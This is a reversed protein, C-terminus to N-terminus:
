EGDKDTQTQSVDSKRRGRQNEASGLKPPSGAFPYVWRVFTQGETRLSEGDITVPVPTASREVMGLVIVCPQTFWRSLDMGHTIQRHAIVRRNMLSESQNEEIPPLHHIFTLARLSAELTSVSLREAARTAFEDAISGPVLSSLLREGTDGGNVNTTLTALDLTQGPEWPTRTTIYNTRAILGNTANGTADTQRHVVILVLNTISGPLNHLLTGRVMPQKLTINWDPTLTLEGVGTGDPQTPRPMQWAPPGSWDLQFEKVTGRVPFTISDPRLTNVAYGRVDPFAGIASDTSGAQEWASVASLSRETSDGAEGVAITADGYSPVYAAAWARARQLSQGYVHDLITFHMASRRKARLASAATWSIGTFAAAGALFLLWSHQHLNKRRLMYFAPPGVCLWYGAFVVLGALLGVASRGAFRILSGVANDVIWPARENVPMNAKKPDAPPQLNGRRGLVRHWLIDADIMEGQSLQTQNLDLGVLTVMGAGVLRRVVVCGEPGSLIPMAENAAADDAPKFLTVTGSKPYNGSTRATILPRYPLMDTNERREILVAPMIDYLPNSLPTTWTQGITPLVVVLHGGRRVWARVAEARDQRLGAIEGSGWALVEFPALGMWRDPLDEPRLGQVIETLEHSVKPALFNASVRVAYDRLGLSRNGMMAILGVHEAVTNSVTPSYVTKGLMAGARWALAPDGEDGGSELAEFVGISIERRRPDDVPLRAYLWVLDKGGPNTTVVRQQLTVDGEADDLMLRVLVTRPTSATDKLSVLLGNWDCRRATKGLGFSEVNIAIENRVSESSGAFLPDNSAPQDAPAGQAPVADQGRAALVAALVPALVLLV